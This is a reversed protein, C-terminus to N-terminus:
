WLLIGVTLLTLGRSLIEDVKLEVVSRNSGIFSQMASLLTEMKDELQAIRRDSANAIQANVNRRRM